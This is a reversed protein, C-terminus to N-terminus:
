VTEVNFRGFSGSKEPRWDGIGIFDGAMQVALLFQQRSMAGTYLTVDFDIAWDRYMPRYALSHTMGVKVRDKRMVPEALTILPVTGDEDVDPSSLVFAARAETGKIGDMNRMVASVIAKAVGGLPFGDRGDSRTYRADNFDAIPDRATRGKATRQQSGEMGAIAKPGFRHAILPSQSKIRLAFRELGYDPLTVAEATATATM